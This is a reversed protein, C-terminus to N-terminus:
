VSSAGRHQGTADPTPTAPKQLEQEARQYVNDFIPGLGPVPVHPDILFHMMALRPMDHPREAVAFDPPSYSGVGSWLDDVTQAHDLGDLAFVLVGRFLRDLLNIHPSHNVADPDEELEFAKAQHSATCRLQWLHKVQNGAPLGTARFLNGLRETLLKEKNKTGPGCVLGELASFKLLFHIGFTDSEAGHRFLRASYFLQHCLPSRREPSDAGVTEFLKLLRQSFKERVHDWHKQSEPSRPTFSAWTGEPTYSRIGADPSDGVRLLLYPCVKPPNADVLLSYGDIIGAVTRWATQTAENEDEIHNRVCIAFLPAKGLAEIFHKLGPARPETKLLRERVDDEIPAAFFHRGKILQDLPLGSALFMFDRRTTM